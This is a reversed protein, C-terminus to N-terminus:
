FLTLVAHFNLRTGLRGELFKKKEINASTERFIREEELASSSISVLAKGLAKCNSCKMSIFGLAM